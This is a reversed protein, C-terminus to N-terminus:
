PCAVLVRSAYQAGYQSASSLASFFSESVSQGTEVPKPRTVKVACGSPAGELRVADDGDPISFDVFFTPDYVDLTFARDAKAPSRLPLDFTLTLVGGEYRTAYNAPDGFGLKSGNAKANTFFGSEALSEVNIKALEDMKEVALKGDPGTPFGQVAYASYAEDFSWGQRIGTVRGSGDYLITARSKVWVHPHALAPAAALLTVAALVSVLISRM